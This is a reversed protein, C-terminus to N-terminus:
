PLPNPYLKEPRPWSLSGGQWALRQQLESWLGWQLLLSAGRGLLLLLLLARAYQALASPRDSGRRPSALSSAGPLKGPPCWSRGLGLGMALVAVGGAIAGLWPVLWAGLWPWALSFRIQDPHGFLLGAAVAAAIAGNSWALLGLLPIPKTMTRPIASRSPVKGAPPHLSTNVVFRDLFWYGGRGAQARVFQGLCLVGGQLLLAQAPSIPGAPNGPSLPSQGWSVQGLPSHPSLSLWLGGAGLVLGLLLDWGDGPLQAQAEEPPPDLKAGPWGKVRGGLLLMLALGAALGYAGALDQWAVTALFLATSSIELLALGLAFGLALGWLLPSPQTAPGTFCRAFRLFIM